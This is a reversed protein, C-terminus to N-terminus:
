PAGAGLSLISRIRQGIAIYEDLDVPKEQISIPAFGGILEREAPTILSSLILVPTNICNANGRFRRLLEGGDVKPLHLDLILLDPCAPQGESGAVQVLELAEEGTSFVRLNYGFAQDDLAQRMLFVDADNDEAMWIRISQKEM